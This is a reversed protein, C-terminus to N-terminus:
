EIKRISLVNGKTLSVIGDDNIPFFYDSGEPVKSSLLHNPKAINKKDGIYFEINPNKLNKISGMKEASLITLEFGSQHKVLSYEYDLLKVSKNDTYFILVDRSNTRISDKQEMANGCSNNLTMIVVIQLILVQLKVM